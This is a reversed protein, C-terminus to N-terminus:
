LRMIIRDRIFKINTKRAFTKVLLQKSITNDDNVRSAEGPVHHRGGLVALLHGGAHEAHHRDELFVLYTPGLM